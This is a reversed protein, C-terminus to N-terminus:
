LIIGAVVLGVIIGLYLLWESRSFMSKFVCYKWGTYKKIPMEYDKITESENLIIDNYMAVFKREISLYYADLIWFLATPVIAVFLYVENGKCNENFTAAFIALLAAVITIAWGKMQFSCQNMRTINSQIFELHKEKKEM